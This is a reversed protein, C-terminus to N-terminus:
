LMEKLYKATHSQKSKMVAEPTGAAIVKGGFQGAEPGMDILYDAEAIIDLNHEVILVSHGADVLRQLVDILRAVDQMHLGISPEEIIYLCQQQAAGKRLANLSRQEGKVLESVLKIRQAEGGSLTSSAQGLTLYGLGTAALLSLSVRLRPIQAFFEEAEAITMALVEAINKGNWQVQLTQENFRAGHCDSCEIWSSALFNMELKIMGNGRCQECCGDATNFSFRGANYGSQRALPTQSYLRRIEDWIGVYTAPTSRPTKGIPAQDIEYVSRLQEFGLAQQWDAQLHRQLSLEGRGISSRAATAIIGHLLSSKGAGSVGSIVVLRAAPFSIDLQKINNCSAKKLSLWDRKPPLPRRKGRIPHQMPERLSQGTPSRPNACVEQWNGSAVVEGGHRGAAPGMDIIHDAHQMTQTDHEVVLLSNGRAKLQQLCGLLAQCDRAHLGISPEDLIYLVGRLTSGLQAALRIRQAEGGSLTTASRNLSLYHLGVQQMFALRQEIELLIDRAIQRGWDDFSFKRLHELLESCNCEALQVIGYEGIRVNRAQANLRAGGCSKCLCTQSEDLNSFAIDYNLEAEGLSNAAATDLQMRPKVRGHGRCESCWGTPSNYSFLRPDLEDFSCGCNACSMSSSYVTSHGKHDILRVFGKGLQLGLEVKELLLAQTDLSDLAALELDINHERYRDLPTFDQAAIRQGNVWLHTYGHQIAWSAHESHLGKRGRVLPVCLYLNKKAKRAAMSEAISAASQKSVPIQCQPCYQQGLKAYLLRLFHWVETVTAVTSKIGGRAIRQEIAVTPPLSSVSDVHAKELQEAFQRAYPSMSDLFRRQGEAFLIDFALSSKGSGSLGTLVVFSDQPIDLNINKLNHQKAGKIRIAKPAVDQEMEAAQAHKGAASQPTDHDLGEAHRQLWQGTISSGHKRLQLPTGQAVLQGGGRGAEPGLDLIYDAQALVDLNHEIVLLSHGKQVLLQFVGLLREIDSAHLGTTPEDFIFLCRAAAQKPKDVLYQALKLRQAEGGSLTNLGQGLQLYGLGVMQLPQLCRLVERCLRQQAKDGQELQQQLWQLAEDISLALIEWINKEGFCYKGMSANFRRGDCQPCRLFLDSLFQMEVKEFGLGQCRGCRGKGTNFSFFGANIDDQQAESSSALLKRLADFGGSWIIPTSRPTAALPKQDVFVVSDLLGAGQLSGIEAPEVGQLDQKQQQLVGAYVVNRALTSKGSGSVGSLCCLVGLPIKVDLRQLNHMSAARIQLFQKPKVFSRKPQMRGTKQLYNATLSHPQRLFDAAEGAYVVKGGQPGAQPGIEIIYDASRLLLEDHEVVVVTNGLQVLRRLVTLLDSTDRAHLGVSPEDLVFLTNTLNAGLCSTLTVRAIEGGSLTRSQRALTLYGLRVQCLYELRCLVELLVTQMNGAPLSQADPLHQKLWELLEQLPMQWLEALNKGDGKGPEGGIKFCLAQQQLRAGHCYECEVYNRYKALLIRVHMKYSRAELWSFFGKVGYWLGEQWLTDVDKSGDGEGEIVWRQQEASLKAFAVDLKIGARKGCRLMDHQCEVTKEGGFVKVAGQRLTLDADIASAYDITIRRGFGRCHSCAGLASNYSFLAESPAHLPYWDNRYCHEALLRRKEDLLLLCVEHNGAVFAQEVAACFRPMRSGLDKLRFMDVVVCLDTQDHLEALLEDLSQDLRKLEDRCWLRVYGQSNLLELMHQLNVKGTDLKFCVLLSQSREQGCPALAPDSWLDWLHKATYPKVHKWGSEHPLEAYAFHPFLLKLYDNIESLSGVSSRSNRISNKQEVAIAPPINSISVAKPKDMREMFQRVYPSFTEVYRRQGEAYLTEFALSSKGSGSRGCIVTLKGLPIDIDINQLNNQSIGRLEIFGQRTNM